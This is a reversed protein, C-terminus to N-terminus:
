EDFIRYIKEIVNSVSYGSIVKNSLESVIDEKNEQNKWSEIKQVLDSINDFKFIFLSSYKGFLNQFAVNSTFVPCGVALSELIVKDMGGTPTMNVSAFAESFKDKIETPTLSGIFQVNSAINNKKVKNELKDKYAKDSNTVPDGIFVVQWKPDNKILLSLSDLLIQCNKIPTIRGVSVLIRSTWDRTMPKFIETNIGHGVYKVKGSKVGFSDESSTLIADALKEAIRLKLNVQRHTYWLVIKRNLLKWLLGGLLVYEQNMHVFVVDYNEREQWIYEYFHIIYRVNSHREEKGLSLIKVNQPLHYEGKELCVVTVKEFNKSFEEIWRHFFGLVPDNRDVKQTIILLRM